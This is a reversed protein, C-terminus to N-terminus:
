RRIVNLGEKGIAAEINNGLDLNNFFCEWRQSRLRTPHEISERSRTASSTKFLIASSLSMWRCMGALKSHELLLESATQKWAVIALKSLRLAWPRTTRTGLCVSQMYSKMVLMSEMTNPQIDRLSIIVFRRTKTAWIGKLRTLSTRFTHGFSAIQKRKDYFCGKMHWHAGEQRWMLTAQILESKSLSPMHGGDGWRKLIGRVKRWSAWERRM